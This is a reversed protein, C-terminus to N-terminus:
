RNFSIPWRRAGHRVAIVRVIDKGIVAYAGIFPTKSIMLERTGQVRGARGLAPFHALPAVQDLIRLLVDRAAKPNDSEIHGRLEELDAVAEQSWIVRYM